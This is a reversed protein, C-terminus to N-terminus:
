RSVAIITIIIITVVVLAVISCCLVTHMDISTHTRFCNYKNMKRFIKWGMWMCIQYKFVRMYVFDWWFKCMKPAPAVNCLSYDSMTFVDNRMMNSGEIWLWICTQASVLMQYYHSIHVCGGLVYCMYERNITREQNWVHLVSFYKEREREKECRM